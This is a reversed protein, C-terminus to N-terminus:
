NHHGLISRCSSVSGTRQADKAMDEALQKISDEDTNSAKQQSARVTHFRRRSSPISQAKQGLLKTAHRPNHFLRSLQAEDLENDV